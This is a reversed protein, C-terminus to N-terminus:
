AHDKPRHVPFTDRMLHAAGKWDLGVLLGPVDAGCDALKTDFEVETAPLEPSSPPLALTTRLM